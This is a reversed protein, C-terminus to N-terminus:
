LYIKMVVNPCYIFMKYIMKKLIGVNMKKSYIAYAEKYDAMLQQMCDYQNSKMLDKYLLIQSRFFANLAIDFLETESRNEFFVVASRDGDFWDRCKKLNYNSKMISGVRIRYNYLPYNVIAVYAANYLLKYTIFTDEYVRGYPYEIDNDIFLSKKYLKNWAVFGVNSYNGSYLAKILEKGSVVSTTADVDGKEIIPKDYIKRYECASIAANNNEAAIYLIEVMQKDIYDDSDIFLVYEGKASRLGVNRADSLGGNKKHIVFVSKYEEAYRDCITPCDDTAGDDVLIIEINQYTQALLSEICESVYDQVNFIPVIISILKNIIM